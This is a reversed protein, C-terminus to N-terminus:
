FTGSAAFRGQNNNFIRYSVVLENFFDSGVSVIFIPCPGSLDAWALDASPKFPTMCRPLTRSSTGDKPGALCPAPKKWSFEHEHAFFCCHIEGAREFGERAGSLSSRQEWGSSSISRHKKVGKNNGADLRPCRASTCGSCAVEDEQTKSLPRVVRDMEVERAITKLGIPAHSDVGKRSSAVEGGGSSKERRPMLVIGLKSAKFFEGARSGRRLALTEWDEVERGGRLNIMTSGPRRLHGKSVHVYEQIANNYLIAAFELWSIATLLKIGIMCGLLGPLAVNLL